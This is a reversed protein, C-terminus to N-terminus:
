EMPSKGGDAFGAVLLAASVGSSVRCFRGGPGIIRSALQMDRLHLVLM